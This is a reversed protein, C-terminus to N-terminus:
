GDTVEITAIKRLHALTHRYWAATTASPQIQFTRPTGISVADVLEKADKLGLGSLERVCKVVNIFNPGTIATVTIEAM